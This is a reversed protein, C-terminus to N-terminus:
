DITFSDADLYAPFKQRFAELNEKNLTQCHVLQTDIERFLVEGKYDIVMSHGAHALGNGDEGTRNVGLVYCQNEIARAQLLITWVNSRVAPWNAMNLLIDYELNVNRSWVPFRVDYCVTPCIRWDKITKIMKRNGATYVKDEGGMRFLHRKDYCDFEGDPQMWVLRNYYQGNEKVAYSGTVVAGTQAAMQRLWKFTTFNMPEAWQVPNMTFGTTFMEPLVILDTPSDISAIKEELMALNATPNEWYLDTQVLAITLDM